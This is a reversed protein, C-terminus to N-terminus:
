RIHLAHSFYGLDVPQDTVKQVSFEKDAYFTVGTQYADDWTAYFNIVKGHRMLAFKNRNMVIISPLESVFAEYNRDVETRVPRSKRVRANM